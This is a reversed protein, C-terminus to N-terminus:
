KSYALKRYNKPEFKSYYIYLRERTINQVTNCVSDQGTWSLVNKGDGNQDCEM